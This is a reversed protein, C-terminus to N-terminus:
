DLDHGIFRYLLAFEKGGDVKEVLYKPLDGYTIAKRVDGYKAIFGAVAEDETGKFSPNTNCYTKVKVAKLLTEIGLFEAQLLVRANLDKINVIGERMYNLLIAFADADQDLFYYPEEEDKKEDSSGSGNNWRGSFHSSFYISSHSLTSVSTVFERGGVDVVM